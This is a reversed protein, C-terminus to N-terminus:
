FREIGLKTYLNKKDILLASHKDIKAGNQILMKAIEINNKKLATYLISKSSILETFDLKAGKKILAETLEKNNNKVAWFLPSDFGANPNAGQELLIKAIETKNYKVAYFIAYEGFYDTNPSVGAKLMLNVNEIKNKKIQKIFEEGSFSLKKIKMQEKAARIVEKEEPTLEKKNAPIQGSFSSTFPTSFESSSFNGFTYKKMYADREETYSKKPQYFGAAAGQQAQSAAPEAQAQINLGTLVLLAILSYHKFKM